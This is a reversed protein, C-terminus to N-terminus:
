RAERERTVIYSVPFIWFWWRRGLYSEIRSLNREEDNLSVEPSSPLYIIWTRGRKGVDFRYVHDRERYEIVETRDILRVSFRRRRLM